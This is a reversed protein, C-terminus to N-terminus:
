ASKELGPVRVRGGSVHQTQMVRWRAVAGPKNAGRAAHEVQPLALRAESDSSLGRQRQHMACGAWEPRMGAWRPSHLGRTCQAARQSFHICASPAATRALHVAEATPAHTRPPMCGMPRRRLRSHMM